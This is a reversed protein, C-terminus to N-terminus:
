TASIRGGTLFTVFTEKKPSRERMINMIATKLPKILLEWCGGFHPEAPPNFFWKMEKMAFTQQIQDVKLVQVAKKLGVAAGKLNTGNDSFM